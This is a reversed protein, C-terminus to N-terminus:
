ISILLYIKIGSASPFPLITVWSICNCSLNVMKQESSYNVLHIVCYFETIVWKEQCFRYHSCFISYIWRNVQGLMYTSLPFHWLIVGELLWWEAKIEHIKRLNSLLIDKIFRVERGNLFLESIRTLMSSLIVSNLRSSCM